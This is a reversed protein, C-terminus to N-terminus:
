HKHSSSHATPKVVVALHATLPAAVRVPRLRNMPETHHLLANLTGAQEVPFHGVPRQGGKVVTAHCTSGNCTFCGNPGCGYGPGTPNNGYPVFGCGDSRACAALVQSEQVNKPPPPQKTDAAAPSVMVVAAVTSAVAVAVVSLTLHRKARVATNIHSRTIM